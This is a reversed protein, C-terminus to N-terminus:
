DDHPFGSATTWSVVFEKRVPQKKRWFAWWPRRWLDITLIDGVTLGAVLPNTPDIIPEDARSEEDLEQEFAQEDLDAPGEDPVNPAPELPALM